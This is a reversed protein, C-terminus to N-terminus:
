RGTNTGNAQGGKIPTHLAKWACARAFSWSRWNGDALQPRQDQFYQSLRTRAALDVHPLANALAPVADLSLSDAYNADFPRGAQSHAVNVRVIVADPNLAHLTLVSLSAALLAGAAFRSRRGRLVTAAFWVFIVALWAMFASTYLRLETLGYEAQYLQMRAVASAMIVFLLGIQAGALVRFLSERRGDHMPQWHHMVLLLPLVLAAVTVLEFFGRRAYEAYTLGVTAQVHAAGGFFYRFQILVFALFLVDILGLIITTEIAGLTFRQPRETMDMTEPLVTQGALGRLVGGAVWTWLATLALHSGLLAFDWHFALAVYHGFVADASALLGGFLLLLPLALALGRLAAFAHRSAQGRPVEKWAIDGLILVPAGYLIDLGLRAMRVVYGLVGSTWLSAAQTSGVLLSLTVGAALLDLTRLTLSDRWVFAGTFLLLGGVLRGQTRSLPRQRRSRLWIFAGALAGTWLLVNLGWATVRLLADGCAGLLIAAWLANLGGRTKESM